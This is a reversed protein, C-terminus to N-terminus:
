RTTVIGYEFRSSSLIEPTVRVGTVREALAFTAETHLSYDCDDANRLDFGSDRMDELLCWGHRDCGDDLDADSRRQPGGVAM